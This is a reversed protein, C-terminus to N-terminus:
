YIGIHVTCHPPISYQDFMTRVHRKSSHKIKGLCRSLLFLHEEEFAFTLAMQATTQRMFEARSRFDPDSPSWGGITTLM